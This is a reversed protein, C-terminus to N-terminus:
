KDVTNPEAKRCTCGEVPCSDGMMEPNPIISVDIRVQEKRGGQHVWGDKLEFIKHGCNKCMKDSVGAEM